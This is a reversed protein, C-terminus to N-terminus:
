SIFLLEYANKKYWKALQEMIQAQVDADSGKALLHIWSKWDSIHCLHQFEGDISLEQQFEIVCCDKPLAWLKAWRTHTQPGGLLICMSAGVISRYVGPNKESVVSVTWDPDQANLFPTICEYVFRPTMVSDTVVVCRQGSPSPSWSPLRTRLATIDERGLESSLPGPVMGVVEEAWCGTQEDFPVGDFSVQLSTLHTDFGKPMWISTDPYTELLRSARSLYHLIYTDPHSFISVDPFPIAMMRRRTQLPTFIDVNAQNWYQFREENQHKGTYITYTDYVLGNPTVSANKWSYVPIAPEFYSNEVSPEWKYRGGKELMTCYTIENSLSSGRVEFGVLENCFSQPSKPPVQEQATDLLHTPEIHVYLETSVFDKISYDRISSHHLHFSKISLAPNCILFRQRLMHAAFANDCAPKGFPFGFVTPEWKRTRVSDSLLIWTDQSDSRPGFLVPEGGDGPDDWRLLALMRDKMDLKWVNLLTSDFYIDSNAIITYVHDPVHQKIYTLVDYYTLRKGIIIQKIKHAGPISKWERSLDTENLLVITDIYLSACNKILCERIENARKKQPHIFYQTILWSSAPVIGKVSQLHSRFRETRSETVDVLRNYRCMIAFISIADEVTQNWPIMFFPYQELMDDLCMINDFNESWYDEPKLSLIARSLLVMRIDKAVAYLDELFTDTEGEVSVLVVGVLRSENEYWRHYDALSSVIADWRSWTTAPDQHQLWILTRQDRRLPTNLTLLKPPMKRFFPPNVKYGETISSSTQVPIALFACHIGM